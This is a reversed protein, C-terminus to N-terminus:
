KESMFWVAGDPSPTGLDYFATGEHRLALTSDIWLSLGSRAAKECFILDEGAIEGDPMWLWEFWPNRFEKEAGCLIQPGWFDAMHQLASLKVLCFGMGFGSASYMGPSGTLVEAKFDYHRHPKDACIGCFANVSQNHRNAYVGSVIDVDRRVLRLIADHPFLMDDDLFLVHTHRKDLTATKVM